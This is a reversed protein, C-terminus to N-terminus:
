GLMLIALVVAEVFSLCLAITVLGATQEIRATYEYPVSPPVEWLIDSKLRELTMAWDIMPNGDADLAAWEIHSTRDCVPYKVEPNNICMTKKCEAARQPDCIYWIIPSEQM